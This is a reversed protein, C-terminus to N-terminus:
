CEISTITWQRKKGCISILVQNGSQNKGEFRRVNTMYMLVLFRIM